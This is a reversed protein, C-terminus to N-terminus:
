RGFRGGSRERGTARARAEAVATATKATTAPRTIARKGDRGAAAGRGPGVAEWGCGVAVYVKGECRYPDPSTTARRHVSLPLFPATSVSVIVSLLAVPLVKVVQNLSLMGVAIVLLMCASRKRTMGPFITLESGTTSHYTRTGAWLM